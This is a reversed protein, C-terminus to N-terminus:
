PIAHEMVSVRKRRLDTTGSHFHWLPFERQRSENRTQDQSWGLRKHSLRWPTSFHKGPATVEASRVERCSRHRIFTYTTWILIGPFEPVTRESGARCMM